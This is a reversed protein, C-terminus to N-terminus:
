KACSKGPVAIMSPPDEGNAVVSFPSGAIEKLGKGKAKLVGITEPNNTESVFLRNGSKGFAMGLPWELTGSLTTQSDYHLGGGSSTSLTTIQNSMTNSVYLKSEDPSLIVNNSNMGHSNTFNNIEALVGQPSISFVEVQTNAGADGFYATSGDCSIEIGAPAGQASFPGLEKLHGKSYNIQFSDVVGLFASILFKGDATVKLGDPSGPASYTKVAKLACAPSIKLVSINNYATNGAFLLTGGGTALGIGYQQRGSEGYSFPSGKVTKLKGDSLDISFASITSNGGNSVFLCNNTKTEAYAVPTEAFYSGGASEAGTSYTHLVKIVGTASVSLATTSNPTTGNGDYVNDNTFLYQQAHLQAPCLAFIWGIFSLVLLTRLGRM